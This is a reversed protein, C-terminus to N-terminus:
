RSSEFFLLSQTIAKDWDPRLNHDANKYVIYEIKNNNKQMEAVFESSWGVPVADDAGGQYLQIPANINALYKTFDYLGAEYLDEFKALESRIFEGEDGSEDTYYLINYPFPKTVPAWLVTPIEQKTIALATLAIQGGNSHAWISVEGNYSIDTKDFLTKEKMLHLLSLITTYTQFRAEFINEAEPDSDAYGLFDPAVTIYGNEAFFEAASRSGMGTQYISQDVYGRILLVAPFPGKGKPINVIGSTTKSKDDTNLTPYFNFEFLYSTFDESDSIKNEIKFNGAPILTQELNPIAYKTLPTSTKKPLLLLDSKSSRQSTWYIGVLLGIVGCLIGFLIILIRQM